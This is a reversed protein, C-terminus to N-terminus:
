KMFVKGGGPNETSNRSARRLQRKRPAKGSPKSGTHARQGQSRQGMFRGRGLGSSPLDFDLEAAVEIALRVPTM